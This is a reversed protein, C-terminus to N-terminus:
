HLLRLFGITPLKMSIFGSRRGGQRRREPPLQAVLSLAVRGEVHVHVHAAALDHVGPDVGQLGEEWPQLDSSESGPLYLLPKYGRPEALCDHKKHQQAVLHQVSVYIVGDAEVGEVIGDPLAEPRQWLPVVPLQLGGIHEEVGQSWLQHLGRIKEVLYSRDGFGRGTKVALISGNSRM